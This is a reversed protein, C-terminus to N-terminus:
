SNLHVSYILTTGQVNYTATQGNPSFTVLTDGDHSVGAIAHVGANMIAGVPVGLAAADLIHTQDIPYNGSNGVAQWQGNNDLYKIDFNMVFGAANACAIKRVSLM